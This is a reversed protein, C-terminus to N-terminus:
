ELKRRLRGSSRIADAVSNRIMNCRGRGDGLSVHGAAPTVDGEDLCRTIPANSFWADVDLLLLLATASTSTVGALDEFRADLPADLNFDFELTTGGNPLTGSVFFSNDALPAPGSMAKELRIDVRTYAGAPLDLRPIAPTATQTLLDIAFPGDIRVKASDCHVKPGLQSPDLSDCPKGGPLFLEINKVNARVETLSLLTGQADASAFQTANQTSTLGISTTVSTLEDGGAGSGSEAGCAILLCSLASACQSKM